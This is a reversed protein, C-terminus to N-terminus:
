VLRLGVDFIFIRVRIEAEKTAADMADDTDAWSKATKLKAVVGDNAAVLVSAPTDLMDREGVPESPTLVVKVSGVASPAM